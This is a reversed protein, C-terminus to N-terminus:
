IRAASTFLAFVVAFTCGVLVYQPDPADELLVYGGTAFAAGMAILAFLEKM